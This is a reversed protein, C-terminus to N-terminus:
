IGSLSGYFKGSTSLLPIKVQAEPAGEMVRQQRLRAYTGAGLLHLRPRGLRRSQRKDAYEPNGNQLHQDFTHLFREEKDGEITVGDEVEVYCCYHPPRDLVAEATFHKIETLSLSRVTEKLASLVQEETVKEGTVSSVGGGKRVFSLVPTAGLKGEVLMLDNINYRYLGASTTFFIYYRQGVVLEDALLFKAGNNIEGVQDEHVFEFFHSTVALPGGAGDNSIPVTGRGESAMYGFDRIEKEGFFEPLQSLYFNMPGGKWCSFVSLRPYVDKPLLRGNQNLLLELEKARKPNPRQLFEFARVLHPDVEALVNKDLRGDRIDAILSEGRDKLQDALLLLSSPNCCLLATIDQVLSTRLLLYYKADVDKLKCHEFPLSFHRRIVKAQRKNLMGSVAGYPLGSETRGEEDNSTIILFKGMAGQPFDKILHYNHVQFAHTYDRVHSENIPVFKPRATTGSTTAFMFPEDVSLQNGVGKKLREIYPEFHEYGSAPVYRRFDDLNEIRDFHHTKGFQTDKNLQILSKLRSEQVQRPNNLGHYFRQIHKFRRAYQALFIDANKLQDLYSSKMFHVSKM